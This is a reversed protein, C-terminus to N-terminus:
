ASKIVEGRKLHTLSKIERTIFAKAFTPQVGDETPELMRGFVIKKSENYISKGYYFGVMLAGCYEILYPESKILNDPNINTM